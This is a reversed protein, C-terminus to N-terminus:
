VDAAHVVVLCGPEYVDLPQVNLPDEPTGASPNFPALSRSDGQTQVGARQSAAHALEPDTALDTELNQRGRSKLNPNPNPSWTM